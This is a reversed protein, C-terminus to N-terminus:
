FKALIPAPNRIIKDAIDLATLYEEATLKKFVRKLASNNNKLYNSGAIIWATAYIERTRDKPELSKLYEGYNSMALGLGFENGNSSKSLARRYWFIAKTNNDISYNYLNGIYAALTPDIAFAKEFLREAREIKDEAILKLLIDKGQILYPVAKLQEQTPSMRLQSMASNFNAITILAVLIAIFKRAM